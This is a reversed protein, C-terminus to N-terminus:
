KTPGTERGLQLNEQDILYIPPFSELFLLNRFNPECDVYSSTTGKTKGVIFFPVQCGEYVQHGCPDGKRNYTLVM